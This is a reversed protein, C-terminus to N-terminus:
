IKSRSVYRPGLRDQRRIMHFRTAWFVMAVLMVVAAVWSIILFPNGRVITVGIKESLNNFENVGKTVTVTILIAAVCLITALGSFGIGLVYLVFLGLLVKNVIDLKDQMKEDWGLDAINIDFPGVGLEKDMLATMNLRFGAESATCNTINLSASSVTSNPSYDGECAGMVHISYWESIGISEAVDGAVDGVVDNIKETVDQKVDNWKDKLSDLFGGDDNSSNNSSSSKIVDYGIRSVNLRAIAYDEMFGQKHGAFLSLASLITGVISLILPILVILRHLLAM